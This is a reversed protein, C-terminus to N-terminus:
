RSLAAIKSARTRDLFRQVDPAKLQVDRVFARDGDSDACFVRTGELVIRRAFLPPCDNLVVVDVANFALAGILMSTLGVRAEFRAGSTPYVFYDLLVAVDIDSERHGPGAARSGFLYASVMPLTSRGFIETLRHQLDAGKMGRM